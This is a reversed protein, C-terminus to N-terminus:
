SVKELALLQAASVRQEPNLQLMCSAWEGLESSRSGVEAILAERTQTVEPSDDWISNTLERQSVLECLVCGLGWVDDKGGVVSRGRAKEPSFYKSTGAKTAAVSGLSSTVAKAVGFDALM